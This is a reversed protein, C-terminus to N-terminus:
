PSHKLLAMYAGKQRRPRLQVMQRPCPLLIRRTDISKQPIIRTTIFHQLTVTELALHPSITTNFRGATNFSRSPYSFSLHSPSCIIPAYSSRDQASLLTLFSAQSRARRNIALCPVGLCILPPQVSCLKKSQSPVHVRMIYHVKCVDHLGEICEVTRVAAHM